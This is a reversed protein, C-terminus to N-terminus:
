DQKMRFYCWVKTATPWDDDMFWFKVASEIIAGEAEEKDTIRDM